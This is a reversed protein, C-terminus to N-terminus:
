VFEGAPQVGSVNFSCRSQPQVYITMSPIVM